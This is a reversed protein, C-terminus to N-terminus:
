SGSVKHIGTGVANADQSDAPQQRNDKNSAAKQLRAFELMTLVLGILLMSFVLIAPYLIEPETSM